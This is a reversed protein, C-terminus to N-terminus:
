ITRKDRGKLNEKVLCHESFGVSLLIQRSRFPFLQLHPKLETGERQWLGGEERRAPTCKDFAVRGVACGCATPM